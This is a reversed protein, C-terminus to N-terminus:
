AAPAVKRVPSPQAIASSLIRQVEGRYFPQPLLDYAGGDLVEIWFRGDAFRDTVVVAVKRGSKRVRQVVDTWEGDPLRAETVVVQFSGSNLLADAEKLSLAHSVSAPLADLMLNLTRADETSPSIFLINNM